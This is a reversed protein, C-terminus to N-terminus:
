MRIKLRHRWLLRSIGAKWFGQHTMGVGTL